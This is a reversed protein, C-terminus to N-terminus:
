TLMLGVAGSDLRELGARCGRAEQIFTSFITRFERKFESSLLGVEVINVMEAVLREAKVLNLALPAGHASEELIKKYTQTHSDILIPPSSAPVAHTLTQPSTDLCIPLRSLVSFSCTYAAFRGVGTVVICAGAYIVAVRILIHGLHIVAREL